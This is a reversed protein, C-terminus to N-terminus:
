ALANETGAVIFFRVTRGRTIGIRCFYARYTTEGQDDWTVDTYVCVGDEIMIMTWAHPISTGSSDIANGSVTFACIGSRQLLLQYAAAYGACVAQRDVLAGYSTQHLGALVYETHAALTDHLYLAKQYNDGDPVGALLDAVAEELQARMAPIEATEVALTMKFYGVTGDSYYYYSYGGTLWFCEPHDNLFMRAGLAMEDKTVRMIRPLNIQADPTDSFAVQELQQYVYLSNGTLTSKAFYVDTTSEAGTGVAAFCALVTVALSILLIKSIKKM